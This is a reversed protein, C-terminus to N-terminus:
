LIFQYIKNIKHIEILLTIKIMLCNWENELFFIQIIISNMQFIYEMLNM